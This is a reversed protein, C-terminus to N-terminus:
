WFYKVSKIASRSACCQVAYWNSHVWTIKTNLCIKCEYYTMSQPSLRASRSGQKLFTMCLHLWLVAALEAPASAKGSPHERVDHSASAPVGTMHGSALM